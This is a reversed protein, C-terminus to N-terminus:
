YGDLEWENLANDAISLLNMQHASAIKTVKFQM